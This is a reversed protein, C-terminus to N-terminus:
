KEKDERYMKQLAAIKEGMQNRLDAPSLVEIGDGFQLLWGILGESVQASVTFVFHGEGGDRIFISEGFRDLVQELLGSKCRLDIKQLQGGFMNFVRSVYDATDFRETYPSVEQFPRAAEELVQVRRMRDVRLHMLNDYKQNNGILYYHDNMWTLAYPSIVFQRSATVIRRNEELQRRSYTLEVKKADEIAKNLLDINYYIEENECKNRSDVYMQRQIKGAQSESVLRELKGTLLRTKRATIFGAAQVADILLRVEPLEFDRTVLFYGAKPQRTSLIEVGYRQLAEIDSYISKREAPVGRGALKECLEAASLPHEEDTYQKFIDLLYLIKLKQMPNGAM